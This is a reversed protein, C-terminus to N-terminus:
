RLKRLHEKIAKTALGDAISNEERYIHTATVKEFQEALKRAKQALVMLEPKKIKYVGVWQRQLLESDTRWHVVRAGLRKATELGLILAEYEAANNTQQGLFKREEALLGGQEDTIAVGAGALGPNGQSAGDTYLIVTM